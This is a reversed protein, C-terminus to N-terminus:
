GGAQNSDIVHVLVLDEIGDGNVDGSALRGGTSFYGEARSFTADAQAVNTLAKWTLLDGTGYWLYFAGSSFDASKGTPNERPAGVGLDFFGDHNLDSLLVTTGFRDGGDAGGIAFAPSAGTAESPSLFVLAEGAGSSSGPAGVVLDALGDGDIDGTAIATGAYSEVSTGWLTVSAATALDQVGGEAAIQQGDIVYVAGTGDLGQRRSDAFPAGIAVDPLGDGNLDDRCAVAHGADAGAQEAAFRPLELDAVAVPGENAGGDLLSSLVLVVEGALNAGAEQAWPAVLALDERGDGDLDACRVVNDGLQDYAADGLLTWNADSPDLSTGEPWAQGEFGYVAGGQVRGQTGASRPAGVVLTFSGKTRVVAVARGFDSDPDDDEISWAGPGASTHRTLSESPYWRVSTAGPMGLLLGREAVVALWDSGLTSDGILAVDGGDLADIEADWRGAVGYFVDARSASYV